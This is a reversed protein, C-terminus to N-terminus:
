GRFRALLNGIDPSRFGRQMQALWSNRRRFGLLRGPVLIVRLRGFIAVGLLLQRMLFSMCCGKCVREVVGLFVNEVEAFVDLYGLFPLEKWFVPM